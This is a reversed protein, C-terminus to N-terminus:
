SWNAHFSGKKDTREFTHAGFHDRLGQIFNAPLKLSTLSNFYSLAATHSPLPISNQIAITSIEGLSPLHKSLLTRIKKSLLLNTLQPQKKYIETFLKLLEARIICGGQWIRAIESLNLKWNHQKAASTLLAFGQTYTIIISAILASELQPIFKNLSPKKGKTPRKYLKSLETRLEKFNSLNRAYVAESIAPTPQGLEYSAISTWMGTGKQAAKDLVKNILHDGTIQDKTRLIPISIEFLYSALTGKNFSEFINAIQNPPLKYLKRLLDYAEAMLQMIGYEIGNHVTKTFHGAGNSGVFTVCPKNDFDKAAIKKLLPSLKNFSARNGGPMLSPGNLAGEEGGSVGCGIFNIHQKKLDQSRTITDKYNSNGCDIVIDEKTLHPLISEIVADVALGAKVMLIIKRPRDLKQIFQKLTKEGSLYESGFEKIFSNTKETTRNYVVTKIKNNAFNRALNAGMTALGIVGISAKDM